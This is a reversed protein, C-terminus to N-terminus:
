KARSACLSRPLLVCIRPMIMILFPCARLLVVLAKDGVPVLGCPRFLVVTVWSSGGCFSLLLTWHPRSLCAKLCLSLLLSM